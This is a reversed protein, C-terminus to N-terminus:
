MRAVHEDWVGELDVEIEFGRRVTELTRSWALGAAAKDYQELDAEAFGPQADPYTYHRYKPATGMSGPIHVLVRLSPPYGATPATIKDPYYCTLACLKPM